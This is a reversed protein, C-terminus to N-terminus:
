MAKIPEKPVYLMVFAYLMTLAVAVSSGNQTVECLTLPLCFQDFSYIENMQIRYKRLVHYDTLLYVFSVSSSKETQEIKLFCSGFSDADPFNNKNYKNNEKNKREFTKHMCTDIHHYVYVSCNEAKNKYIKQGAHQVDLASIKGFTFFKKHGVSVAIGILFLIALINCNM